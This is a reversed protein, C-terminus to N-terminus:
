KPDRDMSRTILSARTANRARRQMVFFLGGTLLVLAVGIAIMGLRSFGPEPQIALAVPTPQNPPAVENM